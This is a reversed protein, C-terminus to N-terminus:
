VPNIKNRCQLGQTGRKHIFILIEREKLHQMAFAVPSCHDKKLLSSQQTPQPYVLPHANTAHDVLVKQSIFEFNCTKCTFKNSHVEPVHLMYLNVETTTFDCYDCKLVKNDLRNHEKLHSRLANESQFMKDCRKCFLYKQREEVELRKM